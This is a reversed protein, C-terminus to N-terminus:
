VAAAYQVGKLEDVAEIVISARYRYQERPREGIAEWWEKRGGALNCPRAIWALAMAGAETEPDLM